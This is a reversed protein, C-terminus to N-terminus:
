DAGPQRTARLRANAARPVGASSYSTIACSACPPMLVHLECVSVQDLEKSHAAMLALWPTLHASFSDPALLSQSEPPSHQAASEPAARAVSAEGKASVTIRETSRESDLALQMMRNFAAVPLARVGLETRWANWLECASNPDRARCCADLLDSWQRPALTLQERRMADLIVRLEAFAARQLIAESLLNSLDSKRADANQFFASKLEVDQVRAAWSIARM